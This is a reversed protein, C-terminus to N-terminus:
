IRRNCIHQKHSLTLGKGLVATRCCVFKDFIRCMVIFTFLNNFLSSFMTAFPYFHKPHAIQGKTAITEFTLRYAAHQYPNVM